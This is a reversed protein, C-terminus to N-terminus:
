YLDQETPCNTLDKPVIQNCPAGRYIKNGQFDFRPFFQDQDLPIFHLMDFWWQTNRGRDVVNFRLIHRGTSQVVITGMLYSNTTTSRHKAVYRKMGKQLLLMENDPISTDYYDYVTRLIGLEQDDQGDQIFTCNVRCTQTDARRYCLYVNYTGENLLPLKFAIDQLRYLNVKLADQNVLAWNDAYGGQFQYGFDNGAPSQIFTTTIESLEEFQTRTMDWGQRRFRSDKVFEPQECVDWFVAKATRRVPGIYSELDHLVGNFCSYDTYESRKNLLSGLEPEEDDDFKNVILQDRDLQFTIAQNPAFPLLASAFNLDAVFYLGNVVHYAAFVWLLSDERHAPIDKRKEKLYSILAERSDIGEDVFSQNNQLFVTYWIDEGKNDTLFEIWGTEEMISKFLSYNAGLEMIQEGITRESASLVHDIKQIYGNGTMIDRELIIAQRNVQIEPRGDINLTRTTLYMKVMNAMRLRGDVFDSTRITDPVVHYKVIQVCEEASLAEISSKGKESLYTAVADNTPIFGTYAGYAHIMGRLDAKDVIELFASMSADKQSIYDDIMLDDTTLFTKGSMDDKCSSFFTAVCLVIGIISILKLFHIKTKM